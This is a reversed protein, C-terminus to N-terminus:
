QRDRGRQGGRNDLREQRQGQANERRGQSQNRMKAVVKGKTRVDKVIERFMKEEVRVVNKDPIRDDKVISKFMGKDKKAGKNFRKGSNKNNKRGKSADKKSLNANTIQPRMLQRKVGVRLRV